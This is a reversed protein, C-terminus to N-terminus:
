GRSLPPAPCAVSSPVRSERKRPFSTTIQPMEHAISALPEGRRDLDELAQDGEVGCRRARVELQDIPNGSIEAAEADRRRPAADKGALGIQERRDAGGLPAADDERPMGIDHRDGPLFPMALRE